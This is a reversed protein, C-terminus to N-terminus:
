VPVGVAQEKGADRCGIGPVHHLQVDRRALNALHRAVVRRVDIVVIGAVDRVPVDDEGTGRELVCDGAYPARRRNRVEEAALRITGLHLKKAVVLLVGPARLHHGVPADHVQAPFVGVDRM